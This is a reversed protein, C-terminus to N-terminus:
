GAAGAEEQGDDIRAVPFFDIGDVGDRAEWHAAQARMLRTPDEGYVTVVWRGGKFTLVPNRRLGLKRMAATKVRSRAYTTNSRAVRGLICEIPGTRYVPPIDVVRGDALRVANWIQHVTKDNGLRRDTEPKYVYECTTEPGDIGLKLLETEVAVAIAKQRVRSEAERLETLYHGGWNERHQWAEFEQKPNM